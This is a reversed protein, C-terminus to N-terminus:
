SVNSSSVGLWEFKGKSIFMEKLYYTSEVPLRGSKLHLSGTKQLYSIKLLYQCLAPSFAMRENHEFNIQGRLQCKPSSPQMIMYVSEPFTQNIPKSKIYVNGVEPKTCNCRRRRRPINCFDSLQIHRCPQTKADALLIDEARCTELSLVNLANAKVRM